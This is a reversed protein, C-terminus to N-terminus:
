YCPTGFCEGNTCTPSRHDESMAMHRKIDYESKNKTHRRSRAMQNVGRFNQSVRINLCFRVAGMYKWKDAIVNAHRQRWWLRINYPSTLPPASIFQRKRLWIKEWSTKYKKTWISCILDICSMNAEYCETYALETTYLARTSQVMHMTKNAWSCLSSGCCIACGSARRPCRLRRSTERECARLSQVDHM